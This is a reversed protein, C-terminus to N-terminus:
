EEFRVTADCDHDYRRTASVAAFWSERRDLTRLNAETPRGGWLDVVLECERVAAFVAGLDGREAFNPRFEAVVREFGSTAFGGIAASTKM